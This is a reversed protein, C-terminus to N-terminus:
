PCLALTRQDFAMGPAKLQDQGGVVRRGQRGPPRWLGKDAAPVKALGVVPQRVVADGWNVPQSQLFSHGSPMVLRHLDPRGPRLSLTGNTVPYRNRDSPFRAQRTQIATRSGSTLIAIM